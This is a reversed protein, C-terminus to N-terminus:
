TGSPRGKAQEMAIQNIHALARSGSAGEIAKVAIDQVQKKAEELQMQLQAIQTNQWALQDNLTQIKLEAVRQESERDRKLLLIEQKLSLEAQKVSEAVTKSIEKQLKEPFTNVTNRLENLEAEHSKLITEREQWNKELSEQKEKNQKDRLRLEEEYKDQTKKRELNKKYEFEELERKRTKNLTEEYEQIEHEREEQESEWQNRTTQIENELDTQLTKYEELMGDTTTQVIDIKHLTQLHETELIIAQRIQALTQVEKVIKESLSGLTKTVDISFDAFKRIVDDTQLEKVSDITEQNQRRIMEDIKASVPNENETEHLIKEFELQIDAKPRRGRKPKSTTNEAM